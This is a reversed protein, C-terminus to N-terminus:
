TAGAPAPAAVFRHPGRAGASPAGRGIREAIVLLTMAVAFIGDTLAESRRLPLAGQEPAPPEM